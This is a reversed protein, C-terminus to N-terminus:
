LRKERKMDVAIESEVEGGRHGILYGALNAAPCSHNPIIRIKDGIRLASGSGSLKGVEESLSTVTIEPHGIVFGYGAVGSNGHAGKDLALSKAGADMIYTSENPHSTITALVTLACDEPSAAGMMMQAYDHFVYNGPHHINISPSAITESFTPTSGSTWLDLSDALDADELSKRAAEMASIELQAYHPLDQPGLASYVSGPHTSVGRLRLNKFGCLAKAFGGAEEPPLGFRHLGSDVIITYELVIGAAKAKRDIMAAAEHSDLRLILHCAEAIRVARDINAESALPYAYMVDSGLMALRECEDLTGALFGGCGSEKQMQAILTSKHTKTMPWLQKGHRTAEEQYWAINRALIDLDLLVAPTELQEIRM